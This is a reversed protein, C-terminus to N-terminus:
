GLNWAVIADQEIDLHQTGLEFELAWRIPWELKRDADVVAAAAAAAAAVAVAAVAAEAEAEAEAEDEAEVVVLPYVRCPLVPDFIFLM